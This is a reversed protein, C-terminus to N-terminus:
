NSGDIILNLKSILSLTNAPRVAAATSKPAVTPEMPPAQAPKIEPEPVILQHSELVIPPEFVQPYIESPPNSQAVPQKQHKVPKQKTPKAHTTELPEHLPMAQEPFELKVDATKPAQKPNTRAPSLQRSIHKVSEPAARKKNNPSSSSGLESEVTTKNSKSEM